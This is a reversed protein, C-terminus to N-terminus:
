NTVSLDASSKLAGAGIRELKNWVSLGRNMGSAGIVFAALACRSMEDATPVQGKASVILLSYSLAFVGYPVAYRVLAFGKAGGSLVQDRHSLYHKFKLSDYDWAFVFLVASACQVLHEAFPEGSAVHLAYFLLCLTFLLAVIAFISAARETWSARQQNATESM